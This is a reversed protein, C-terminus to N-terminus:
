EESLVELIMEGYKELKAPGVGSVGGLDDLNQPSQEAIARLVKDGFVCYPPVNEEGARARRWTRLKEFIEEDVKSEDAHIQPSAASKEGSVKAIRARKRGPMELDIEGRMQWLERGARTVRCVFYEEEDGQHLVGRAILEDLWEGIKAVSAGNCVGFVPHKVFKTVDAASSGRLIKQLKAKGVPPYLTDLGQILDYVDSIQTPAQVYGEPMEAAIQTTGNEGADCCDCCFGPEIASDDGFYDLLVRRRCNKTRVYGLMEDLREYRSAKEHDLDAALRRMQAPAIDNQMVRLISGEQDESRKEILGARELKGVIVRPKPERWGFEQDWFYRPVRLEGMGLRALKRVVNQFDAVNIAENEIFFERLRKDAVMSSLIVARAKKGDRGARGAEQYYAEPSEPFGWHIVFRVDSKDIGMGFANTAVLLPLDGRLWAEQMASRLNGDMGAHYIGVRKGLPALSQAAIEAVSECQKRTSVYILGSGGRGILKPLAKALRQEREYDNKCKVVSFHLNPRNFGGVVVKPDRMKLNHIISDQVRITATATVAFTPPHGIQELFTSISLYDPRFDHGWESICHAEDVVFRAVKAARLTDLFAGSRLREPAVYLLKLRGAHLLTLIDRQESQSQSSNLYAAGIEAFKSRERLGIIQDRMLAILPSIVVTVGESFAAPLQFTLSKGAGTPMVVLCDRGELAAEIAEQQLHRFEGFGFIEQLQEHLDVSSM